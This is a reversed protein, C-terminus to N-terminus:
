NCYLSNLNNFYVEASFTKSFSEKINKSMFDRVSGNEYLEILSKCLNSALTATDVDLLISNYGGKLVDNIGAVKTALICKGYQMASLLVLPMDEDSISSLVFVDSHIIFDIYDKRAGWLSISDELNHLQILENLCEYQEGSGIIHLHFKKYIDNRHKKLIQFSKILYSHGKRKELFGVAVINFCSAFDEKFINKNSISTDNFYSFFSKVKNRSFGLRILLSSNFKSHTLFYDVRRNIIKIFIKNAKSPTSNIQYVLKIEPFFTLLFVFHNCADSAPFGGNNIHIINPKKILVFVLFVFFNWFFYLGTLSLLHFPIKLIKKNFQNKFNVNINHYLRGNSLLPLGFVYNTGLDSPLDAYLYKRYEPYYLYSFYINYNDLFLPSLYISRM